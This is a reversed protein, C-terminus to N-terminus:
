AGVPMETWRGLCSGCRMVIMAMEQHRLHRRLDSSSRLRRDEMSVKHHRGKAMTQLHPAALAPGLTTARITATATHAQRRVLNTAQQVAVTATKQAIPTSHAPSPHLPNTTIQGPLRHAHLDRPSRCCKHLRFTDISAKRCAQIRVQEPEAHAPLRDPNFGKNYAM